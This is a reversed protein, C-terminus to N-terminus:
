LRPSLATLGTGVVLLLGVIQVALLLHSYLLASVLKKDKGAVAQIDQLSTGSRASSLQSELARSHKRMASVKARLGDADMRAAALEKKLDEVRPGDVTGQALCRLRDHVQMGYVM